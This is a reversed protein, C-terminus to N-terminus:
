EMAKLMVTDGETTMIIANGEAMMVGNPMWTLVATDMETAEKGSISGLGTTSGEM